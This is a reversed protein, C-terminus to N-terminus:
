HDDRSNNPSGNNSQYNDNYDNNCGCNNSCCNCDNYYNLNNYSLKSQGTKDYQSQDLKLEVWHACTQFNLCTMRFDEVFEFEIQCGTPVMVEWNIEQYNEYYSSADSYTPHSTIYSPTTEDLSVVGGADVVNSPQIDGCTDGSLGDPCKCLDCNNPDQYGGNSCPQPLPGPCTESCYEINVAMADFFSLGTRQGITSLYSGDKPIISPMIEIWFAKAHYHMVSGYDYPVHTVADTYEYKIFNRLGSPRIQDEYVNIYDDRDPRQHEHYMGLAHGIEHVPTGDSGFCTSGLNIVQGDVTDQRGFFSNCTASNAPNEILLHPAGVIDNIPREQFRLCTHSEWHQFARYIMTRELDTYNEGIIKYPIVGTWKYSPYTLFNMTDRKSRNKLSTLIVSAQEANLIVDGFYVDGNEGEDAQYLTQFPENGQYDDASIFESLDLENNQSPSIHQTKIIENIEKNITQITNWEQQSLGMTAMYEDRSRGDPPTWKDSGHLHEGLPKSDVIKLFAMVALMNTILKTKWFM